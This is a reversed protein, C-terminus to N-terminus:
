VHIDKPAMGNWVLNATFGPQPATIGMVPDPATKLFVNVTATDAGTSNTAVVTVTSGGEPLNVDTSYSGNNNPTAAGNVTIAALPDDVTGAVVVPNAIEISDPVPTAIAVAPAPIVVTVNVEDPASGARGDSVILRAVYTGAKDAIFTPKASAQDSLAAASNSPLTTLSWAYGLTDGNADGSASGDLVVADGVLVSSSQDSGADAVPPLNNNGGGGGCAALFLTLGLIWPRTIRTGVSQYM